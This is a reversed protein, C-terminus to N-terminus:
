LVPDSRQDARAQEVEAIGIAHDFVGLELMAEAQREPISLEVDGVGVVVLDLDAVRLSSGDLVQRAGGSRLSSIGVFRRQEVFGAAQAQGARSQVDGIGIVPETM